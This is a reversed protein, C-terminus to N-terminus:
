DVWAYKAPAIKKIQKVKKGPGSFWVYMRQSKVGLKSAVDKVTIGKKGANKLLEIMGEKTVAPKAGKGKGMKAPESPKMKKASAKVAEAAEAFTAVIAPKVEPKQKGKTKAWRQKQAAAMKAKTAASMKRKKRKPTAVPMELVPMATEAATGLISALEQDLAEIKEKIAIAEKLQAVTLTTLNM